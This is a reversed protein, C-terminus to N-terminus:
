SAEAWCTATEWVTVAVAPLGHTQFMSLAWVAINEATTPEEGLFAELSVNLNRHDLFPELESKWVEKVDSFDVVMGRKPGEVHRKGELVVELRYSHGHPFRCKGDHHPLHHAAEFTFLKGIRM